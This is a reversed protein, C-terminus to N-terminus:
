PLSSSFSVYSCPCNHGRREFTTGVFTNNPHINQFGKLGVPVGAPNYCHEQNVFAGPTLLEDEDKTYDKSVLSVDSLARAAPKLTISEVEEHCYTTATAVLVVAACFVVFFALTNKKSSTYSSPESAEAFIESCGREKMSSGNSKDQKCLLSTEPVEQALSMNCRM